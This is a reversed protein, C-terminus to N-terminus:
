SHAQQKKKGKCYHILLFALMTLFIISPLLWYHYPLQSGYFLRHLVTNSIFLYRSWFAHLVFFVGAAPPEPFLGFCLDFLFLTGSLILLAWATKVYRYKYILVLFVALSICYLTFWLILGQLNPNTEKLLPHLESKALLFVAMSSGTLIEKVHARVSDGGPM